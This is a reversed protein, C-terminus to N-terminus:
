DTKKHLSLAKIGKTSRYIMFVSLTMIVASIFAGTVAILANRLEIPESQGFRSLLATELTLLSILAAALSIIKTATVVPSNHNKYKFLNMVSRTVIVFTYLAVAYILVGHYEYTKHQFLIMFVAGALIINLNILIGGCVRTRKHEKLLDKGPENNKLYWALVFRMVALTAYYFALIGFWATRYVAASVAKLAAFLLNMILAIYLDVRIKYEEDTLYRAIYKNSYLKEKLKM